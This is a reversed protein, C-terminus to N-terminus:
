SHTTVKSSITTKVKEIDEASRIVYAKQNEGEQRVRLVGNKIWIFRHTEKLSQKTLWLLHKNYPTLAECLSIASSGISVPSSPIIESITIKSRLLKTATLWSTQQKESTLEIQVPGPRDNRGPLRKAQKVDTTKQNLKQAVRGVLDLLNDSESSPLNHIEIWKCLKQQEMEQMRQELAGVRTELNNNRNVLEINKKQLIIVNAQMAAINTVLEEMKDSHYQMSEVIDKLERKITKEMEKSIDCLLKKFDIPMNTTVTEDDGEDDTPVIISRRRPSQTKCDECTWELNETARVATLQKNNLGSCQTNLHVIKECRHCELGPKIKTINKNCNDCKTSM